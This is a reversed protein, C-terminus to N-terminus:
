PSNSCPGFWVGLALFLSLLPDMPNACLHKDSILEGKGEKKDSDYCCVISDVEVRFNHLSLPGLNISRAMCNWQLVRFVWVFINGSKMAWLLIARFLPCMMPDAEKKDLQGLKKADKTEVNFSDLFANLEDYFSKPLPQKAKMSGFNIADFYKRLNVHSCTKGGAKKKKQALFAKIVQVNLGAYVLDRENKHHFLSRDNKEEETLPRTGSEHYDPYENALFEITHEIRNRYKQEPSPKMGKEEMGLMSSMHADQISLDGCIIDASDDTNRDCSRIRGANGVM